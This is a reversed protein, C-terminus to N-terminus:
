RISDLAAAPKAPTADTRSPTAARPALSVDAAMWLTSPTTKLGSPTVQLALRREQIPVSTEFAIPLQVPRFFRQPIKVNFGRGVLAQIRDGARAKGLAIGCLGGKTSLISDLAALASPAPDVFIRIALGPFAPDAVLRGDVATLRIRGRARYSQPRVQGTVDRDASLDGCVPGAMGKSAWDMRIRAIGTGGALRVPVDLQIDDDAFRLVPTGPQLRGRVGRLNVELDYTGLTRRGFISLRARIEGTKRLRIPPLRLDVDHFWGTVVDRVVADVFPTPLGIIIDGSPRGDLLDSTATAEYVIARLSDREKTLSQIERMVTAPDEREAKPRYRAGLVGLAVLGVLLLAGIGGLLWRRM